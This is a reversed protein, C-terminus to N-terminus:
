GWDRFIVASVTACHRCASCKDATHDEVFLFCSPLPSLLLVPLSSPLSPHPRLIRIWRIITNIVDPCYKPALVHMDTSLTNIHGLSVGPTYSNLTEVWGSACKVQRLKGHSGNKRGWPLNGWNRWSCCLQTCLCSQLTRELRERLRISSGTTSALGNYHENLKFSYNTSSCM